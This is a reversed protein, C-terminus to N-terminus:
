GRTPSDGAVVTVVCWARSRWPRSRRGCWPCAWDAAYAIEDVTAVGGGPFRTMSWASIRRCYTPTVTPAGGPDGGGDPRLMSSPTPTSCWSPWTM